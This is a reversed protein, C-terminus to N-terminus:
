ALAAAVLLLTLLVYGLPTMATVAGYAAADIPNYGWAFEEANSMGDGDWDNQGDPVGDPTTQGDDCTTDESAPDFPNQVGPTNPDLDETEQDTYTIKVIAPPDFTLGSPGFDCIVAVGDVRASEDASIWRSLIIQSVRM